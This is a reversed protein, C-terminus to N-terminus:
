NFGLRRADRATLGLEEGIIEGHPKRAARAAALQAVVIDRDRIYATVSAPQIKRHGGPTEFFEIHGDDLLQNLLPRSVGVLPAAENPSLPAETDIIAVDHGTAILGLLTAVGDRVEAPLLTDSTM